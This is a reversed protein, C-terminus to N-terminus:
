RRPLAFMWWIGTLQGKMAFYTTTNEIIAHDNVIDKVNLNWEGSLKAPVMLISPLWPPFGM